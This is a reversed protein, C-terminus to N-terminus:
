LSDLYEIIKENVTIKNPDFSKLLVGDFTKLRSLGVYIMGTAFADQLDLISHTLTLSQSRHLTIAYALILPIQIAKVSSDNFELEWETNEITKTVGNDFLVIPFKQPTFDIITGVSGNILGISVDLNKILMVRTNKKLQLEILGKQNLQTELEKKLIDIIDKNQSTIYSTKFTAKYNYSPEPLKKLNSENIIQAKKNSSVLHIPIIKKKNFEALENLYNKCKDKLLKIDDKTHKNVRLRLLLNMYSEDGHQRFNDKLIIINKNKMNFQKLYVDSEVLLRTDEPENSIMKNQNFIPQLQLFDGTLILQIGGFFKKSKKFHKCIHNLKEFLAASMMSIEDIVLVDTYILREVIAKNKSIRNILTIVDKDGTGIGMFSNITMGGINYAAVGTTATLYINKGINEELIYDEMTKILKSNHTVIFNGLLYRQNGDVEFGFYEGLGKSTIKIPSTLSFKCEENCKENYKENRNENYKKTEKEKNNLLVPICSDDDYITIRNYGNTFKTYKFHLGLSNCLYIIDNYLEKNKTVFEYGLNDNTLKLNSDILGALIKLRNNKSNIKYNKPIIKSNVDNHIKNYKKTFNTFINNFSDNIKYHGDILDFHCKNEKLYNQIYKIIKHHTHFINKIDTHSSGIWLGIIYPDIELEQEPYEISTQYGLFNSQINKHLNLYTQLPIDIASPTKILNFFETAKELTNKQTEKNYSFKTSMLKFNRQEFWKVEYYKKNNFHKLYKHKKLKLSLIHSKNVTYTEKNNLHQIEFLEENGNTLSLVKRPTSDDGMIYENIKIDQVMKITGDYMLVPTNIALCKGTGGPGTIILSKGKKFLEFAKNQMPSLHTTLSLSEMQVDDLLNSLMDKLHPNINDSKLSTQKFM